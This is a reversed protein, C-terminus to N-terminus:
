FKPLEDTRAYPFEAVKEASHYSNLGSVVMSNVKTLDLMGHLGIVEEPLYIHEVEGIILYTNNIPILIEQVMKMGIKIKSEKVFPAKFGDRYDPTLGVKEFESEDKKFKASTYHAKIVFDLHVHNITYFGTERINELTDRPVTAPRMIFGLLAPNSGIHVVSSSIALNAYGEASTTGILNASKFGTIGNILNLRFLKPKAYINEKTYHIM